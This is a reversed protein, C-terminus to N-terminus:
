RRPVVDAQTADSGSPRGVQRGAASQDEAFVGRVGPRGRLWATLATLPGRLALWGLVAVGAGLALGIAVDWPYHAAIYVRSFAM